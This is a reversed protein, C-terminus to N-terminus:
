VALMRRLVSHRAPRARSAVANVEALTGLLAVRSRARTVATYLLGRDWTAACQALPLAVCDCESGQFKHVTAAYALTLWGEARPFESEGCDFRVRARGSWPDISLLVGVDGNCASVVGGGNEGRKKKNQNKLAMVLDGPLLAEGGGGGGSGGGGRPPRTMTLAQDVPMSLQRPQGGLAAGAFTLTTEGCSDTRMTGRAQAPLGFVAAATVIDVAEDRVASQLARNLVARSANQPTLVQARRGVVEGVAARMAEGATKCEVLAVEDSEFCAESVSGALVEAALRQIGGGCRHNHTLRAAPVAGSDLLDRLVNGTGVPPLQDADGVLVVHCRPPALSLVGVMLETSLMSAEDVVMLLLNDPVDARTTEQLPRRRLLRGGSASHVTNGGVNRAARGTPATLMCREEGLAQVLARVVTSKGTGPGGTLVSLAASGAVRAAAVQAETLGSGSLDVPPLYSGAARKKVDRALAAEARLTEPETIGEDADPPGVLALRGAGVSDALAQRVDDVGGLARLRGLLETTPLMTHGDRKAALLAWRAHGAVRAEFKGGASAAAVKDAEDLTGKLEHVAAYPDRQLRQPADTDWLDMAAPVLRPALGDLMLQAACALRATSRSDPFSNLLAKVYERTLGAAALRKADRDRLVDPLDLRLEWAALRLVAAAPLGRPAACCAVMARVM